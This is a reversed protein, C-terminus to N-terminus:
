LPLECLRILSVAYPHGVAKEIVQGNGATESVQDDRARGERGGRAMAALCAQGLHLPNAPRAAADGNDPRVVEFPESGVVVLVCAELTRHTDLERAVTLSNLHGLDEIGMRDRLDAAAAPAPDGIPYQPDIRRAVEGELHQRPSPLM